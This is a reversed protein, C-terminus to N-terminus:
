LDRLDAGDQRSMGLRGEDLRKKANKGESEVAPWDM